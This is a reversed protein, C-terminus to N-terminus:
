RTMGREGQLRRLFSGGEVRAPVPLGSVELLTPLVDVHSTLHLLRRGAPIVGPWRCLFVVKIGSDYLTMKARPLDPGQDAAFYVFTNESLGTDDLATLIRGVAADGRRIHEYFTAMDNRVISEDPLFGPVDLSEAVDPDFDAGHPRYVDLFDISLFFPRYDSTSVEGAQLRRAATGVLWDVACSAVEDASLHSEEPSERVEDWSAPEGCEYQSGIFATHYDGQRLLEPLDQVGERDYRGRQTSALSGDFQPHRGTLLSARSPSSSPATAFHQELLAGQAALQDLAPTEVDPRGYCGLWDGLDHWIIQIINPRDAM